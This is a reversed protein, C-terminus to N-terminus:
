GAGAEVTHVTEGQGQCKTKVFIGSTSVPSEAFDYDASSVPAPRREGAAVEREYEVLPTTGILEDKAETIPQVDWASDDILPPLGAATAITTDYFYLQWALRRRVEAVTPELRPFYSPDKNLGLM